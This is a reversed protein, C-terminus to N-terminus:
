IQVSMHCHCKHNKAAHAAAVSRLGATGAPVNATAVKAAAHVAAANETAAGSSAAAQDATVVKAILLSYKQKCYEVNREHMRSLFFQVTANVAVVKAAAHVSMPVSMHCDHKHTTVALAAATANAAAVGGAASAAM